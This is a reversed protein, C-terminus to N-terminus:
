GKPKDQKVGKVYTIQNENKKSLAELRDLKTDIFVERKNDATRHNSFEKDTSFHLLTIWSAFAMTSSCYIALFIKIYKIETHIPLLKDLHTVIKDVDTSTNKVIEVLKAIAITNEQTNKEHEQV